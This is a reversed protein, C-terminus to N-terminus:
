SSDVMDTCFMSKVDLRAIKSGRYVSILMSKIVRGRQKVGEDGRM